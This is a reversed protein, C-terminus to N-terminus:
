ARRDDTAIEVLGCYGILHGGGKPVIGWVAMEGAARHREVYALLGDVGHRRVLAYWTTQRGVAPDLRRLTLRETELIPFDSVLADPNMPVNGENDM